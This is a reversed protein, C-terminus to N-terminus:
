PMCLVCALGVPYTVGVRNEPFSPCLVVSNGVVRLEIYRSHM